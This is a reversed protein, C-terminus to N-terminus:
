VINDGEYNLHEIDHQYKVISMFFLLNFPSRLVTFCYYLQDINSTFCDQINIFQPIAVYYVISCLTLFMLIYFNWWVKRTWLNGGYTSFMFIYYADLILSVARITKLIDCSSQDVFDFFITAVGHLISLIFLITKVPYVNQLMSFIIFKKASRM